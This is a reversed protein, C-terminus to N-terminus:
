ERDAEETAAVMGRLEEETRAAALGRRAWAVLALMEESTVIVSESFPTDDPPLLALAVYGALMEETVEPLATM